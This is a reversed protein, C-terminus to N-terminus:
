WGLEPIELRTALRGPERHGLADLRRSFGSTRPVGRRLRERLRALRVRLRLLLDLASSASTSAARAPTNAASFAAM